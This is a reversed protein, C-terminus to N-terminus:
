IVCLWLMGLPVDGELACAGKGLSLIPSVGFHSWSMSLWATSCKSFMDLASFEGLLFGLIM